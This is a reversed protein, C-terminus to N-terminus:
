AIPRAVKGPAFAFLTAPDPWAYRLGSPTGNLRSAVGGPPRVAAREVRVAGRAEYFAQADVNQELVWVYLPTEREIVAQGILAVLESGVGRRKQGQRVHLNDLLSGWTPDAEFVGHAFGVLGADGEALVTYTGGDHTRLRETWVATRDALVDADLFSDSYAGRYHKRWSDAHLAAVAPADAAGASRFRLGALNPVRLDGLDPMFGGEDIRAKAGRM